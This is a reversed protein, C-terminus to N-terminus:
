VNLLPIQVFIAVVLTDTALEGVVKLMVGEAVVRQVLPAAIKNVEPPLVIRVVPENLKLVVDDVFPRPVDCPLRVEAIVADAMGVPAVIVSASTVILNPTDL